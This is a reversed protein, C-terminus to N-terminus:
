RQLIPLYLQFPPNRVSNSLQQGSFGPYEWEVLAGENIIPPNTAPPTAAGSLVSQDINSPPEITTVVPDEGVARMVLEGNAIVDVFYLENRIQNTSMTLQIAFTRTVSSNANLLPIQWQIMQSPPMTTSGGGFNVVETGVPVLDFITLGTLSKTLPNTVTLTYVINAGVPVAAPGSKTITLDASTATPTTTVTPTPSATATGAVSSATPTATSTPTSTTLGETATPSPTPTPTETATPTTVLATNTPTPTVTPTHRQARYVLKVTDSAPLTPLLWTITRDAVDTAWALPAAITDTVLEMQDPLANRVVLDALPFTGNQLEITYTVEDGGLLEGQPENRLRISKIGPTPTPTQTPTNTPTSTSTPTPLAFILELKPRKDDVSGSQGCDSVLCDKSFFSRKHELNNTTGILIIGLIDGRKQDVWDQVLDRLDWRYWGPTAAIQTTTIPASLVNFAERRQWTLEFADNETWEDTVLQASVTLPTSQTTFAPSLYLSLFASEVVKDQLGAPLQFRMLAQMEQFPPRLAQDYGILIYQAQTTSQTPLGSVVYADAIPAQTDSDSQVTQIAGMFYVIAFIFAMGILFLHFLRMQVHPLRSM